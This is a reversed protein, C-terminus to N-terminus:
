GERASSDDNAGDLHGVSKLKQYLREIEEREETSIM